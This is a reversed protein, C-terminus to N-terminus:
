RGHSASRAATSAICRVCRMAPRVTARRRRHPDRGARRAAVRRADARPVARVGRATRRRAMAHAADAAGICRGDGLAVHQRRRSFRGGPRGRRQRRRARHARPRCRRARRAQGRAHARAARGRRVRAARARACRARHAQLDHLTFHPLSPAPIAAALPQLHVVGNAALGLGLSAAIALACAILPQRARAAGRACARAHRRHAHRRACAHARPRRPLARMADFVRLFFADRPLKVGLLVPLQTGVLILAAGNAYGVLVPTSLLDAVDGLRLRGALILLAGCALALMAALAAARVPDGLALPAIVSGALLAITTDPGVIVRRNPAFLAYAVMAALAAYLGAQPRVGALEAYALVSPIMVVCISLAAAVDGPLASRPYSLLQALGPLWHELRERSPEPMPM